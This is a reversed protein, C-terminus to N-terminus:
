YSKIIMNEILFFYILTKRQFYIEFIIINKRYLVRQILKQGLRRKLKTNWTKSLFVQTEKLKCTVCYTDAGM